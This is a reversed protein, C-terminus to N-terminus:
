QTESSSSPSPQIIPPLGAKSPNAPEYSVLKGQKLRDIAKNINEIHVELSLSDPIILPTVIQTRLEELDMQISEMRDLLVILRKSAKRREIDYEMLLELNKKVLPRQLEKGRVLNVLDALISPEGSTQYSKERITIEHIAYLDEELINLSGQAKEIALILRRAEKEILEMFKEYILKLEQRSTVGKEVDLLKRSTLTNYTILNDIVGKTQSQMSQIDKGFARSHILYEGLKSELVDSLALNSHKIMLQLDRTALEVQKLTLPSIPATLDEVIMDNYDNGSSGGDKNNNATPLYLQDTSKINPNLVSLCLNEQVKALQSFNPISQDWHECAPVISTFSISNFSM